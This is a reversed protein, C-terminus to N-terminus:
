KNFRRKTGCIYDSSDCSASARNRLHGQGNGDSGCDSRRMQYKINLLNAAVFLMAAYFLRGALMSAILTILGGFKKNRLGANHYLLGSVLGYIALEGIMFPLRPTGPMGTVFHSIIPTLVGIIFGYDGGIVFGTLIVPIHMPLFIEGAQPIGTLHFIQPLAIGFALMLAGATLRKTTSKQKM